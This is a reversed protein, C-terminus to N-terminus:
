IGLQQLYEVKSIHLRHLLDNNILIVAIFERSICSITFQWAKNLISALGLRQIVIHQVLADNTRPNQLKAEGRRKTFM